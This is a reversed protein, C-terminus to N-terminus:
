PLSSAGVRSGEPPFALRDAMFDDVKDPRDQQRAWALPVPLSRAGWGEKVLRQRQGAAEAMAGERLVFRQGYALLGDHLCQCEWGYSEGHFRLECDIQKGTKRLSWVHEAPKSIKPATHAHLKLWDEDAM